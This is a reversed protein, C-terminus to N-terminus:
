PDFRAAREGAGEVQAVRGVRGVVGVDDDRERGRARREDAACRAAAGIHRRTPLVLGLLVAQLPEHAAVRKDAARGRPVRRPLVRPGLAPRPDLDPERVLTLKGRKRTSSYHRQSHRRAARAPGLLSTKRRQTASWAPM